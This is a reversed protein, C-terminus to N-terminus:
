SPSKLSAPACSIASSSCIQNELKAAMEAVIAKGKLEWEDRNEMAYNSYEDSFVGFVGCRSLQEALPLVYTDFFELEGKYWFEAPHKDAKGAEYAKLMEEFLLENWKRYVHWHQMTHAVDSVQILLEIVITAKRNIAERTSDSTPICNGFAMKWRRDRLQKLDTDFVDTSMVCNVVLQRFHQLEHPNPCITNRLAHYRESMFLEWVEVVTQQEAVCRNRCEVALVSSEKVLQTNPVGPHAADHILAAFACAFRTLPDSTIGVIRQHSFSEVSGSETSHDFYNDNAVIRSMLKAVSM